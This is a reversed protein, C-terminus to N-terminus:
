SAAESRGPHPTTFALIRALGTSRLLARAAGPDGRDPAYLLARASGTHAAALGLAGTRAAIRELPALAPGGRLATNRRASATAIRALAARDGRAAAAQWDGVLDSIDAFRMDAADTRRPPGHFGGLVRFMPPAPMPRLSRGERSAWLRTAPDPFMLPDSAGEIALCLRTLAERALGGRCAALALIAATSTGTGGGAPMNASLRIAGRLPAAPRAALIRRVAPGSLLPAGPQFLHFPRAPTWHAETRAASCPLTILVVPGDAGMRGQLFEGFHGAVTASRTGARIV